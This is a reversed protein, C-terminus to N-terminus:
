HVVIWPLQDFVVPLQLLAMLIAQHRSGSRLGFCLIIKTAWATALELCFAAQSGNFCGSHRLYAIFM